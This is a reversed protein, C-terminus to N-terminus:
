YWSSFYVDRNDNNIADLAACIIRITHTDLTKPVNNGGFFFGSVPKLKNAIVLNLLETLDEVTLQVNVCNFEETGGKRKYLEEMWGHIHNAKRWYGISSVDFQDLKEFKQEIVTNTLKRPISDINSDLGMTTVGTPQQTNYM